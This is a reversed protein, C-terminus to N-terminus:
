FRAHSKQTNRWRLILMNSSHMKGEVSCSVLLNRKDHRMIAAEVKAEPSPSFLASAIGGNLLLWQFWRRYQFAMTIVSFAPSLYTLSVDCLVIPFFFVLNIHSEFAWGAQSSVKRHELPYVMCSIIRSCLCVLAETSLQLFSRGCVVYTYNDAGSVSVNILLKNIQRKVYQPFLNQTVTIKFYYCLGLNM